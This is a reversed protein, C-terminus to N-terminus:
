RRLTRSALRATSMGEAAARGIEIWRKRCAHRNAPNTASGAPMACPLANLHPILM